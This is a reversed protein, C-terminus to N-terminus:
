ASGASRINSHTPTGAGLGSPLVRFFEGGVDLVVPERRNEGARAKMRELDDLLARPAEAKCTFDLTDIGSLLERPATAAAPRDGTAGYDSGNERIPSSAM